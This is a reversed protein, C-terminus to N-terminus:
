VVLLFGTLICVMGVSFVTLSMMAQRPASSIEIIPVHWGCHTEEPLPVCSWFTTQIVLKEGGKGHQGAEYAYPDSVPTPTPTPTPTLTTSHLTSNRVLSSSPIISYNASTPPIPFTQYMPRSSLPPKPSPTQYAQTTTLTMPTRIQLATTTTTLITVSLLALLANILQM